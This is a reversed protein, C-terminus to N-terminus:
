DLLASPRRERFPLKHVLTLQDVGECSAVFAVALRGSVREIRHEVGDGALDGLALLDGDGPEAGELLPDAVGAPHAVGRRTLPDLGLLLGNRGELGTRLELVDDGTGLLQRLQGEGRDLLGGRRGRLRRHAPRGRGGLLGVPAGGLLGRRGLLRRGLLRRRLLSRRLLGRSSPEPSSPPPWSPAPWSPMAALFDVALFDVAVFSGGLLRPWSPAPSSPRPSSACRGLLSPRWSTSPWSSSPSSPVALFAAALFAGRLLGALFAGALFAAWSTRSASASSRPLPPSGVPDGGSGSYRPTIPASCAPYAASLSRSVANCRLAASLGRRTAGVRADRATAPRGRHRRGHAPDPGRGPGSRRRVGRPSPGIRRRLASRPRRRPRGRAADYRTGSADAVFWRPTLGAGCRSTSTRPACARCTPACRPWRSTPTSCGSACRRRPAARPQPRRRGRRAAARAGDVEFGPEDTVVYVQAVAPGAVRRRDRRPRVRADTARARQVRVGDLRSKALTLTKVPMLLAFTHSMAEIREPDDLWRRCGAQGAADGPRPLLSAPRCLRSVPLDPHRLNSSSCCFRPQAHVVTTAMTLGVRSAVVLRSHISPSFIGAVPPQTTATLWM